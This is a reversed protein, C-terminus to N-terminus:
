GLYCKCADSSDFFVSVYGNNICNSGFMKGEDKKKEDGLEEKLLFIKMTVSGIGVV